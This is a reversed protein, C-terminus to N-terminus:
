IFKFWSERIWSIFQKSSVSPNSTLESLFYFYLMSVGPQTGDDGADSRKQHPDRTNGGAAPIGM